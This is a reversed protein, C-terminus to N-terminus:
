VSGLDGGTSFLKIEDIGVDFILGSFKQGRSRIASSFLFSRFSTADIVRQLSIELIYNNAM